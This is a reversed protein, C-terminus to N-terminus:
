VEGGDISTPAIACVWNFIKRSCHYSKGCKKTKKLMLNILAMIGTCFLGKKKELEFNHFCICNTCKKKPCLSNKKKKWGAFCAVCISQKTGEIYRLDNM